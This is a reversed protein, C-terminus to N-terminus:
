MNTLGVLQSAFTGNSSNLDHIWADPEDEGAKWDHAGPNIGLTIKCHRGSIRKEGLLVDNDAGPARGFQM